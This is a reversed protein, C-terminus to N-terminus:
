AADMVGGAASVRIRPKEPKEEQGPEAEAKNAKQAQMFAGVLVSGFFIGLEAEEQYKVLWPPMEMDYKDIVAQLKIAGHQRTEKDFEVAPHAKAVLNCFKDAASMSFGSVKVVQKGESDAESTEAKEEAQEQDEMDSLMAQLDINEAQTETEQEGNEIEEVEM